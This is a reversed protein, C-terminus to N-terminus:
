KQLRDILLDDVRIQRSPTNGTFSKFSKIFHTQDYYNFDYGIQTLSQYNHVMLYKRLQQFKTILLFTKPTAGIYEKFMRELTKQSLHNSKCYDRINLSLSYKTFDSTILELREDPMSAPDIYDTLKEELFAIREADTKIESVHEIQQNFGPLIDEMHIIQDFFRFVPLKILPYFGTPRFSIGVIDLPGNQEITRYNKQIGRFHSASFSEVKFSRSYKIPESLNIILDINNTPILKGSIATKSSSLTWFFKVLKRLLGSTPQHQKLEM